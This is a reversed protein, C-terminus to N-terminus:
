EEALDEQYGCERCHVWEPELVDEIDGTHDWVLLTEPIDASCYPCKM